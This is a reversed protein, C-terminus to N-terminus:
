TFGPYKERSRKKEKKKIKATQCCTLQFDTEKKRKQEKETTGYKSL